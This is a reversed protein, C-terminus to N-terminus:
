HNSEHLRQHDEEYNGVVVQLTIRGSVILSFHSFSRRLIRVMAEVRNIGYKAALHRQEGKGPSHSLHFNRDCEEQM